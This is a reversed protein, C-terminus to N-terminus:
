FGELVLKGITHGEELMRHATRLNQANIRGLLKGVTTVLAGTDVLDAVTELLEHQAVMDPTGYKPRTFMFEWAFVGSKDMLPALDHPQRTRVITCVAGQPALIAAMTAFYRDTDNCCLVYNVLPEGIDRLQAALDRSHDVVADAGLKLCWERSAPRSATAIVKLKTVRKAIQIAISGVGGAGGLILLSRGGHDGNPSVHMRDFLAEWATIATLPLAAAESFSLRRPKHGVIREDVLHYESNCGQRIISGAYFVADGPHFLSCDPGAAEVVGAADWGLIRPDPEAPNGTGARVKTDVPNVAVAEVKVLLDRGVAVPVPIELDVLSQPDSIPLHRHFGVARM